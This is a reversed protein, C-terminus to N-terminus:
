KNSYEVGMSHLITNTGLIRHVVIIPFWKLKMDKLQKIKKFIPKSSVKIELTSKWNKCCNPHHKDHCLIDYFTRAGKFVSLILRLVKSNEFKYLQSGAVLVGVGSIYRKIANVYGTYTLFNTNIGYKKKFAPYNRFSGDEELFHGINYVGKEIFLKNFPM